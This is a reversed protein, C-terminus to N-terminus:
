GIPWQGSCRDAKMKRLIDTVSMSEEYCSYINDCAVQATDGSRVMEAAKDWFAKCFSYKSKVADRDGSNFDKAPKRGTMDFNWEFWLDHLTRPRTSLETRLPDVARSPAIEAAAEPVM